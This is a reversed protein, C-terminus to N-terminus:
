YLILFSFNWFWPWKQVRRKLNESKDLRFKFIPLYKPVCIESPKNCQGWKILTGLSYYTVLNLWKGYGLYHLMRPNFTFSGYNQKLLKVRYSNQLFKQAWEAPLQSFQFFDHKAKSSFQVCFTQKCSGAINQTGFEFTSLM